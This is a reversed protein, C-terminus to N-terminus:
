VTDINGAVFLCRGLNVIVRRALSIYTSTEPHCKQFAKSEWDFPLSSM